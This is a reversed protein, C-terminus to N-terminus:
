AFNMIITMFVQVILSSAMLGTVILRGRENYFNKGHKRDTYWRIIGGLGFPVIYHPPLFLGMAIGIMSVPTFIELLAGMVGGGVFTWPNIVGVINGTALMKLYIQSQLLSIAPMMPTGFGVFKWLVITFLVSFFLTPIWGVIKAKIIDNWSVDYQERYKLYPLIGNSIWPNPRFYSFTWYGTYDRYGMGFIPFDYLFMAMFGMSMGTEGAMKTILVLEIFSGIFFAYATFLLASFRPLPSFPNLFWALTFLAGAISLVTILYKKNSILSKVLIKFLNIYGLNVDEEVPNRSVSASSFKNKVLMLVSLLIGGLLLLGLAPGISFKFVLENYFAMPDNSHNVIGKFVLFPSIVFYTILGSIM